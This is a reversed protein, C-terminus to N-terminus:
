PNSPEPEPLHTQAWADAEAANLKHWERHIDEALDSTQREAPLSQFWNAADLPSDRAWDRALSEQVQNQHPNEESQDALWAAQLEFPLYSSKSKIFSSIQEKREGQLTQYSTVLVDMEDASLNKLHNPLNGYLQTPTIEALLTEPALTWLPPSDTDTEAQEADTIANERAQENSLANLFASAEDPNSNALELYTKKLVQDRSQENLTSDKLLSAIIQSGHKAALESYIQVRNRSSQTDNSALFELAQPLDRDAMTRIARSFYSNQKWGPPLEQYNQLYDTAAERHSRFLQYFLNYSGARHEEALAIGSRFDTTLEQLVIGDLARDRFKGPWNELHELLTQSDHEALIRFTNSLNYANVQTTNLLSGLQSLLLAPRRRAVVELATSLTYDDDAWRSTETLYTLAAQPDNTAWARVLARQTYNNYGKAFSLEVLWQPDQALMRESLANFLFIGWDGDVESYNGSIWIKLEEESLANVMAYAARYRQHTTPLAAIQALRSRVNEPAQSSVSFLNQTKQHTRKSKTHALSPVPDSSAAPKLAWGLIFGFACLGLIILTRM